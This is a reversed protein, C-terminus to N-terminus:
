DSSFSVAVVIDNEFKVIGWDSNYVADNSHRFVISNKIMLERSSSLNAEYKQGSGADEVSQVKKVESPINWGTGIMYNQMITQVDKKDMGIKIKDLDDLFVRRSSWPAIHLYTLLSLSFILLALKMIRAKSKKIFFICSIGTCLTLCYFWHATPIDLSVESFLSIIFLLSALFYLIMKLFTKM